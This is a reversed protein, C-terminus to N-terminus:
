DQRDCGSRHLVACSSFAWWQGVAEWGRRDVSEETSVVNQDVNNHERRRHECSECNCRARASAAAQSASASLRVRAGM